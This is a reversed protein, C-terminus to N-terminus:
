RWAFIHSTYTIGFASEVQQFFPFQPVYGEKLCVNFKAEALIELIRGLTQERDEFQHYEVFMHRVNHLKDASDELIVAEAGEVDIKLFDVPQDLWHRLRVSNVSQSDVDDEAPTNLSVRSELSRSTSFPVAGDTNWVAANHLEVNLEFTSCNEELCQFNTRDPEFCIIKSDPHERQLALTSVGINAGCDIITSPNKVAEFRYEGGLVLSAYLGAFVNADVYRFERGDIHYTGPVSGAQRLKRLKRLEWAHPEYVLGAHLQLWPLVAFERKQLVRGCFHWLARAVRHVSSKPPM